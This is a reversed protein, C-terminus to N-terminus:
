QGDGFSVSVGGDDDDSISASAKAGGASGDPSNGSGGEAQSSEAQADAGATWRSSQEQPHSWAGGNADDARVAAASQGGHTLAQWANKYGDDMPTQQTTSSARQSTPATTAATQQAAPPAQPALGEYSASTVPYNHSPTPWQAATTPQQVATPQPARALQTSSAMNKFQRATQAAAPPAFSAAGRAGAAGPPLPMLADMSRRPAAAATPQAAPATRTTAGAGAATPPLVPVYEERVAQVPRVPPAAQAAPMPRRAAAVDVSGPLEGGNTQRLQELAQQERKRAGEVQLLAKAANSLTNDHTLARLYEQRADEYDGQQTLMFALNARAEGEDNVRRYQRLGGDLNGTAALVTGLNNNVIENSPEMEAARRLLMEAEPLRNELYYLYGMDSLLEASPPALGAATQFHVEAQEFKAERAAMVGLRHHPLPNSPHKDIYRRYMRRAEAPDGQRETLRAIALSPDLHSLENIPSQRQTQGGAAPRPSSADARNM